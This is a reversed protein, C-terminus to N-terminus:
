FGSEKILNLVIIKRNTYVLVKYEGLPLDKINIAIQKKRPEISKRFTVISIIETSRLILSDNVIKYSLEKADPNVNSRLTVQASMCSALLLIFLRIM